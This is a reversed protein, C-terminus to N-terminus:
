PTTSATRAAGCNICYGNSNYTHALMDLSSTYTDGCEMCMYTCYGASTCTAPKMTAITYNHTHQTTYPITQSDVVAGCRRCIRQRLGDAEPTAVTVTIWNGPNHGYAKIEETYSDTCSCTYTYLGDETCSPQKTIAMTYSHQHTSEPSTTMPIDAEQTEGCRTCTRTQKGVATKTPLTTVTWPGYSHGLSPTSDQSIVAKCIACSCTVTGPTTCTAATVITQRSPHGTAPIAATYTNDCTCTYTMVGDTTCTPETTVTGVYSHVHNDKEETKKNKDTTSTSSTSSSSLKAITEEKLLANCRTCRQQRLGTATTTAERVTVWDGAKHQLTAISEIYYDGCSCQYRMQGVETCTPDKLITCQYTHTHAGSQTVSAVTEPVANESITSVPMADPFTNESDLTEETVSTETESQSAVDTDGGIHNFWLIVGTGIMCLLVMAILVSQIGKLIGNM